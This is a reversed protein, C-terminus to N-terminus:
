CKENEDDNRYMNQIENISKGNTEPVFFYSFVGGSFCIIAFFTYTASAGIYAMAIPFM